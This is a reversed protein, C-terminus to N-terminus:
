KAPKRSLKRGASLPPPAVQDASVQLRLKLRDPIALMEVYEVARGTQDVMMSRMELLPAGVKIELRAAVMPDALTASVIKEGGSIHAGARGLLKLMPICGLEAATFTRGLAGPVYSTLHMVPDADQRRVRVARQVPEDHSNWLKGRLFEPATVYGFELVEAVTEAGYLAINEIVSAARVNLPQGLQPRVTTRRGAGREILGADHLSTMARRVTIRSVGFMRTLQEETPLPAGAGYRGSSIGDALVLYIQHHLPAGLDRQITIREM